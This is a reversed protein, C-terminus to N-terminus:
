LKLNYVFRLGKGVDIMSCVCVGFSIFIATTRIPIYPFSVSFNLFITLQIFDKNHSISLLLVFYTNNSSCILAINVYFGTEM